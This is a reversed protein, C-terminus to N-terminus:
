FMDWEESASLARVEAAWRRAGFGAGSGSSGGHASAAAPALASGTALGFHSAFMTAEDGEPFVLVRAAGKQWLSADGMLENVNRQCEQLCSGYSPIVSRRTYGDGLKADVEQFLKQFQPRAM